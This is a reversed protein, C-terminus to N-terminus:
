HATFKATGSLLATMLGYSKDACAKRAAATKVRDGIRGCLVPPRNHAMAGAVNFYRLIVFDLGCAAGADRLMIETMLKSSGYPSLPAVADDEGIPV